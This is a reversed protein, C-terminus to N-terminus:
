YFFVVNYICMTQSHYNNFEMNNLTINLRKKEEVWSQIFNGRGIEIVLIAKILHWSKNNLFVKLRLWPKFVLACFSKDKLRDM